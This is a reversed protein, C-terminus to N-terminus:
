SELPYFSSDYLAYLNNEKQLINNCDLLVLQYSNSMKFINFRPIGHKSYPTIAHNRTWLTLVYQM